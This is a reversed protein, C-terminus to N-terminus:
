EINMQKDITVEKLVNKMVKDEFSKTEERGYGGLSAKSYKFFNEYNETGMIGVDPTSDYWVPRMRENKYAVGKVAKRLKTKDEDKEWKDEDKIYVTERKLDTCHLPRDHIEMENIREVIINSIGDVFGREGTEIFDQISINISKVFDKLTMANKCKENLFVNLNFKNNSNINNNVTNNGMNKSMAVISSTLEDNKKVLELITNTLLEYRTDENQISISEHVDEHIIKCTRKHNCLSSMHKYEKGCNCTYTTSNKSNKENPNTLRQHKRTLSHRTYDQKNSCKFKCIDCNFKYLKISNKDNPMIILNKQVSEPIENQDMKLHRPRKNHEEQLKRTNFYVRCSNCYFVKKPPKIVVEKKPKRPPLPEISNLTANYEEFYQQEQKKASYLDDCNHFAIIEMNWNDWGMNDRIIKYVKCNYNVSKTNICSQKHAYKRQVFNTTHGIYLEKVSPDKCFIKYFITNSYDIKVKPM